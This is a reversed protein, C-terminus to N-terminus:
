EEGGTYVTALVQRAHGLQTRVSADMVKGHTSMIIGGLMAPDIKENLHVECGGLDASLKQKIVERLHDDLEVVTTVDVIVTNLAKEAADVYEEAILGLKKIDGREAAVAVIAVVEPALGSLAEKVLASKNAAPVNGDQLFERLQSSKVVATRASRIDEIDEFVRGAQQAAELLCAAYTTVEQKALTRNTPM